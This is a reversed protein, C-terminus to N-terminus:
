VISGQKLHEQLIDDSISDGVSLVCAALCDSGKINHISQLPLSTGQVAKATLCEAKSGKDVVFPTIEVGGYLSSDEAGESTNQMGVIICPQLVATVRM